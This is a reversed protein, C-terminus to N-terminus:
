VEILSHIEFVPEEITSPALTMSVKIFEAVAQADNLPMDHPTSHDVGDTVSWRLIYM